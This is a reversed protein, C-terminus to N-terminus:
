LVKYADYREDPEYDSKIITYGRNIFYQQPIVLHTFTGDYKHKSKKIIHTKYRISGIYIGKKTIREFENITTNLDDMNNLYELMSNCILYEFYYNKFITETCDFNLVINNFLQIHKNVLSLSKDIGYYEYQNLLNALLGSGCGYEIIKDSKKINLITIINKILNEPDFNTQEWGNLIYLNDTIETGKKEWINKWNLKNSNIIETTSIGHNYEIAIFKNLKKPIKFFKDQKNIDKNNSFAHVVYDIDKEILFDKTIELMDTIIVEDVYICSELIKKRQNENLLPKRKYNTSEKDNILGVILYIPQKWYEKIKKLHNLHGMHFLDFIGDCYIKLM